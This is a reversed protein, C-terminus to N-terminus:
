SPIYDGRIRLSWAKTATSVNVKFAQDGGSGGYYLMYVVRAYIINTGDEPTKVGFLTIASGTETLAMVNDYSSELKFRKGTSTSEANLYWRRIRWGQSANMHEMPNEYRPFNFPDVYDEYVGSNGIKIQALYAPDITDKPEDILLTYDKVPRIYCADSSEASAGEHHDWPYNENVLGGIGPIIRENDQSGYTNGRPVSDVYFNLLDASGDIEYESENTIKIDVWSYNIFQQQKQATNGAIDIHGNKGFPQNNYVDDSNDYNYVINSDVGNVSYKKFLLDINMDNSPRIWRHYSYEANDEMFYVYNGSAPYELPSRSFAVIGQSKYLTGNVKNDNENVGVIDGIIPNYEVIDDFPLAYYVNDNSRAVGGMSESHINGHRVVWCKIYVEYLNIAEKNYFDESFTLVNNIPDITYNLDGVIEWKQRSANYEQEYVGAFGFNSQNSVVGNENWHYGYAGIQPVYTFNQQIQEASGLIGMFTSSKKIFVKFQLDHPNSYGGPPDYQGHNILWEELVPVEGSPYVWNNEKYFDVKNTDHYSGPGIDPVYNRSGSAQPSLRIMTHKEFGPDPDNQLVLTGDYAYEILRGLMDGGRDTSSNVAFVDVFHGYTPDLPDTYLPNFGSPVIHIRISPSGM